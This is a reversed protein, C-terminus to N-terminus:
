VWGTSTGSATLKEYWRGAVTDYYISYIPADVVGEPSGAGGFLGGSGGGGGGSSLLMVALAELQGRTLGAVCPSADFQDQIDSQTMAGGFANSWLLLVLLQLLQGQTLGGVCPSDDFLTQIEAATM